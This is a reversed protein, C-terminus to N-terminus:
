FPVEGYDVVEVYPLDGDRRREVSWTDYARRTYAIECEKVVSRKVNLPGVTYETGEGLDFAALQAQLAKRQDELVKATAAVSSSQQKVRYLKCALERAEEAELEGPRPPTWGEWAQDTYPCFKGMRCEQPSRATCDPLGGTTEAWALQEVLHDIQERYSDVDVTEQRMELDVPDVFVIAGRDCDEDFLQQGANQLAADALLGAPHSSSKVEISAREEILYLDPHLTGGPWRVERQRQVNMDGYRAIYQDAVIDEFLQGRRLMRQQRETRESAPAGRRQLVAARPCRCAMSWRYESANLTVTPASM